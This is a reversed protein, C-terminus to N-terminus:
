AQYSRVGIAARGRRLVEICAHSAISSTHSDPWCLGELAKLPLSKLCLNGYTSESSRDCIFFPLGHHDFYFQDGIHFYCSSRLAFYFRNLFGCSESSQVTIVCHPSMLELLSRHDVGDHKCIRYRQITHITLTEEQSCSVRASKIQGLLSLCRM